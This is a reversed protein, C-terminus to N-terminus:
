TENLGLQILQLVRVDLKGRDDVQRRGIKLLNNAVQRTNRVLQFDLRNTILKDELTGTLKCAGFNVAGLRISAHSKNQLLVRALNDLTFERQLIESIEDLAGVQARLNFDIQLIIQRKNHLIVDRGESGNTEAQCGKGSCLITHM